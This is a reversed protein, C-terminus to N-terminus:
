RVQITVGAGGGSSSDGGGESSAPVAAPESWRTAGLELHRSAGYSVFTWYTKNKFVLVHTGNPVQSDFVGCIKGCHKELHHRLEQPFDANKEHKFFLDAGVFCSASAVDYVKPLTIVGSM